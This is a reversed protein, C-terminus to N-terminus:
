DDMSIVLQKLADRMEDDTVTTDIYAKGPKKLLVFKVHGGDMKKDSKTIDIIKEIDVGDDLTLPLGFPLFMDRIEYFEETDLNERKYSIWSAAITGLAVCEGHMLKFDMYKEIAHGITHGFNLLAREGKETPDKEVVAAKIECSRKIMKELYEPIRDNIENFNNILWEYYNKDKILGHKLIEAMGSAFQRGDLSSLVSMNMYVLAPQHFAGVMNKFEEFDVGTKGGISSDTQSLLTTPIQIFRIKRLYTAAAFGALDGIVGGGLAIIVDNRDFHNEILKRYVLRVNDLTKNDEGAKIVVSEVLSFINSIIDHVEKEYLPGVNSDTVICARRGNLDLEKLSDLLKSFNNEIVIKYSPGSSTEAVTLSTSM